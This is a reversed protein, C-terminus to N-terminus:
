YNENATCTLGSAVLDSIPRRNKKNVILCCTMMPDMGTLWNDQKRIAQFKM